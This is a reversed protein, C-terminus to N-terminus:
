AAAPPAQRAGWQQVVLGLLIAGLGAITSPLIQEGLLFSIFVLSMLPSLFILNSIRAASTTLRMAQLWLVFTLGMEFVGIYAAGALGQWAVPKLEDTVGCWILILPLSFLFNLTLGLVPERQDRTNLLWYSSWLLTSLLAFGVGGLDSFNLSLPHGRTAIILVGMYCMLAAVMDFRHLRQKLVPVALLAMTLAWTYNIAQAEQAPLRDYAQFLILYYVFPNLGGFLLSVRWYRRIGSVLEAGRRSILMWSLLFLSSSMTAYLVLQAPTLHSLSIKFATAVTSWFFVAMLGFMYAKNQSSM